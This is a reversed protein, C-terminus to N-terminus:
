IPISFPYESARLTYMMNTAFLGQCRRQKQGSRRPALKPGFHVRAAGQNKVVEALRRSRALFSGQCRRRKRGTRGPARRPGFHDRAAGRNKVVEALRRSRGVSGSSGYERRQTMASRARSPLAARILPVLSAYAKRQHSLVVKPPRSAFGRKHM